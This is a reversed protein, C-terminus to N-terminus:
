IISTDALGAIRADDYGLLAKLVQETDAGLAPAMHPGDTRGGATTFPGRVVPVPGDPGDMDRVLERFQVQPDDFVQSMDRVPACPVGVERLATM